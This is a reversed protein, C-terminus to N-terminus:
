KYLFKINGERTIIFDIGEILGRFQNHNMKRYKKGDMFRYEGDQIKLDSLRQAEMHHMLQITGYEYVKGSPQKLRQISLGQVKFLRDFLNNPSPDCFIEEPSNEFLLVKTDRMLVIDKGNRRSIPIQVIQNKITKEKYLPYHGQGMGALKALDYTNVLEFDKQKGNDYFSMLYNGDTQAYYWQKHEHKIDRHRKIQLPNQVEDAFIKVKYVKTPLAHIDKKKRQESPPIEFYGQEHITKAGTEHALQQLRDDVINGINKAIAEVTSGRFVFGTRFSILDQGRKDKELVLHGIEDSSFKGNKKAPIKVAGYFTAKHLSARIGRGKQYLPTNNQYQIHGKDRV